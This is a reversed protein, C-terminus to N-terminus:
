DARLCMQQEAKRRNVLGQLVKGGARDYLLMANCAATVDGNNLDRAVSSKCYAGEGINYILSVQSAHRYPTLSEYTEPTLCNQLQTDYKVLDTQLMQQCQAKTYVKTLDVGDSATAGYCITKESVSDKYVVSSFGEFGSVVMVAILLWAAVPSRSNNRLNSFM